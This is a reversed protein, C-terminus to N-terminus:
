SLKLAIWNSQISNSMLVVVFAMSAAFQLAWDVLLANTAPIALIRCQLPTKANANM